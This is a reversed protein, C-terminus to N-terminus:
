MSTARRRKSRHGHGHSVGDAAGSVPSMSMSEPGCGRPVLQQQSEQNDEGRLLVKGGGGGMRADGKHHDRVSLNMLLLAANKEAGSRSSSGGGTAAREEHDEPAQSVSTATSTTVTTTPSSKDSARDYDDDAARRKINFSSMNNHQWTASTSLPALRHNAFGSPQHHPLPHHDLRQSHGFSPIASLIPNPRGKVDGPYTHPHPHPLDSGYYASPHYPSTPQSVSHSHSPLAPHSTHNVVTWGGGNGSSRPPSLPSYPIGRNLAHHLAPAEPGGRHVEPEPDVGFPGGAVQKSRMWGDLGVREREYDHPSTYRPLARRALRPSPISTPSPLAAGHSYHHNHIQSQHLHHPLLNNSAVSTANAYMRRFLDAERTSEAVISPDIAMRGYEPANPSTCQSPFEPGFIPILAGAIPGCFTACVAKACHFPM